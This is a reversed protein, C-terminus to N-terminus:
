KRKDGSQEASRHFYGGFQASVIQKRLPICVGDETCVQGDFILSPQVTEAGVGESLELPVFFQVSGLHKELRQGFVPDKEIIKPKRDALFEGITKYNASASASVKTPNFENGQTLSHIYAGPSLDVQLILYGQRSGAALHFRATLRYPQNSPDPTLSNSRAVPQRASEMLGSSPQLERAGQETQFTREPFPYRVRSLEPPMQQTAPMYESKTQPETRGDFQEQQCVAAALTPAIPSIALVIAAIWVKRTIFQDSNAVPYGSKM